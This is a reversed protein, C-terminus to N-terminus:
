TGFMYTSRIEYKGMDDGCYESWMGFFLFVTLIICTVLSHDIEHELRNFRNTVNINKNKYSTNM